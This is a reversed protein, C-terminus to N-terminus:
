VVPDNILQWALFVKIMFSRITSCNFGHGYKM